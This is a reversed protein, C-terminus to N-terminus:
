IKRDQSMMKRGFGTFILFFYFVCNHDNVIIIIFMIIILEYNHVYNHNNPICFEVMKCVNLEFPYFSCFYNRLPWMQRGTQGSHFPFADFLLKKKSFCFFLNYAPVAHVIIYM